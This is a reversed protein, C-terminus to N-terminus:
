GKIQITYLFHCKALRTQVFVGPVSFAIWYVGQRLLQLFINQQKHTGKHRELYFTGLIINKFQPCKFLKKYTHNQLSWTHYWFSLLQQCLFGLCPYLWPTRTKTQRWTRGIKGKKIKIKEKETVKAM